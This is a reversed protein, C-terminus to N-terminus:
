GLSFGVLGESWKPKNCSHWQGKFGHLDKPDVKWRYWHETEGPEGAMGLSPIGSQVKEILAHTYYCCEALDGANGNVATKAERLTPYWGWCRTDHSKRDYGNIYRREDISSVTYIFQESKGSYGRATGLYTWSTIKDKKNMVTKM